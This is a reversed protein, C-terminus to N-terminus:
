LPEIAKGIPVAVKRACGAEDAVTRWRRVAANVEELVSTAERPRIGNDEALKLCHERMPRRGEGLVTTTHEGGPGTSFTLDYAPALTWEGTRDDLMFAFNKAHDDRNHAAINFVMLRFLRLVDNQNRTLARTVKFIDAYDSSPIRFNVHVLNAFTHVHLRRNDAGGESLPARDFRRVGFYRRVGRGHKVEFLRTPPMDIGAARAMMSYAYEIPGADRADAKAAFKVIWHEFGAPLDREGSVIQEGKVGVLVKPRAGAPSGGARMLQPLVVAAKGAFVDEANRGMEYLDVLQAEGDEERHLPPHYTLAGMTGTGLYALRDLPSLSAPDIGQRRFLRDMLLLGWGDPLSDAFLGPLPGISHDDHATLGPSLPLKFPSLELGREVFAADYEFLIRRESEAIQGVTLEDGPARRLRVTLRRM